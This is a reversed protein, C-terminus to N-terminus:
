AVFVAQFRASDGTDLACQTLGSNELHFHENTIQVDM